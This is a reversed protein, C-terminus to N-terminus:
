TIAFLNCYIQDAIGQVLTECVSNLPSKLNWLVDNPNWCFITSYIYLYKLIGCFNYIYNKRFWKLPEEGSFFPESVSGYVIM